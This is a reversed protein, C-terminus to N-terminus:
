GAYMIDFIEQMEVGDIEYPFENTVHIRAISGDKLLLDVYTENDTRYPSVTDGPNLTATGTTKGDEDVIEVELAKLVSVDYQVNFDYIDGYEVPLGDSGVYCLSHIGTTGFIDTGKQVYFNKPDTMIGHYSWWDDTDPYTMWISGTFDGVEKPGKSTIEFVKAASYDSFETYLFYCYVKGEETKILYIDSSFVYFDTMEITYNADDIMFYIASVCDWEDPAIYLAFNNEYGDDFFDNTYAQNLKIGVAFTDEVDDFYECDWFLDEHGEYPIYVEIAGAAYAAIDYPNFVLTIGKNNFYFGQEVAETIYAEYPDQGDMYSIFMDWEDEYKVQLIDTVLDYMGRMNRVIDTFKIEKGTEVDFSHPYDGYWGHAGGGYNEIPISISLIKSDARRVLMDREVFYPFYTEEGSTKAEESWAVYQDYEEKTSIAIEQDLEKLAKALEPYKKADADDLEIGAYSYKVRCVYTDGNDDYISDGDTYKRLSLYTLAEEEIEDDETDKDTNGGISGIGSLGSKGCATFLSMILAMVLLLSLLRKKM